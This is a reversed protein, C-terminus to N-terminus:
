EKLGLSLYILPGVISWWDRFPSIKSYGGKHRYQYTKSVPVDKTKYGLTLVKFHIYYELQYSDLWRQHINIQPNSFIKLRYARFGNTVDTCQVGTILTWVFPYLRSFIKRFFPNRTSKGGALFRSGQIYDYGEELIPTLLRPIERPDDKNNGAMIVAVDYKRSLAYQIGSRIANGIGKRKENSIITVPIGIKKATEMIRDLYANAVCDMVICIEDVTNDSFKSLVDLLDSVDRYVPIISITQASRPNTM